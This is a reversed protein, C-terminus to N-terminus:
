RKTERKKFLAMLPQVYNKNTYMTIADVGAKKFTNNTHKLFKIKHQQYMLQFQTSGTDAWQVAQTEPDVLPVLGIDPFQSEIPDLVQLAVVDHKKNALKLPKSYSESLFDSLIFATCRKKIVGTFYKLAM